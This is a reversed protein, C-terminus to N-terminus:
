LPVEDDMDSFGTSSKRGTAGGTSGPYSSRGTVSRSLGNFHEENKLFVDLGDDTVSYTFFEWGQEDSEIARAVYGLRELKVASLVLSTSSERKLEGEISHFSSGRPSAVRSKVCEALFSLDTAQLEYTPPNAVRHAIGPAATESTRDIARLTRIREKIQVCAYNMASALDDDPRDTAYDAVNMGLLDSPLHMEVGRPKVIYCRDKGIAGIFLGLEFVVNDRAIHEQQSRISAIDDPTFAFVAFDIASSKKVLDDVTQSSLTFTGNRWITCHVEHELNANIADAIRLGEVSSAIFLSPKSM